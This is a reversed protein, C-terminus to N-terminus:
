RRRVKGNDGLRRLLALAPARKRQGRRLPPGDFRAEFELQLERGKKLARQKLRDLWDERSPHPDAELIPAQGARYVWVRAPPLNLWVSHSAEARFGLGSLRSTLPVPSTLGYTFQIFAGEPQMLEFADRLLNLRGREPRTLLPLSSVICAAPEQLVPRMTEALRYADGHVIQARPFRRALLKCFSTDYEVLILREQAVGRELLAETVPGTGPGLEIIPGPKTPDVYSAMARALFRGSPSVAGTVKPNDLWRKLFRAEDALREDLPLRPSRLRESRLHKSQM